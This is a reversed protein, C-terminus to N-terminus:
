GQDILQRRVDLGDSAVHGLAALHIAMEGVVADLEDDAVVLDALGRDLAEM